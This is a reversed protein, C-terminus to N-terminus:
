AKWVNMCTTHMCGIKFLEDVGIIYALFTNAILFSFVFFLGFKASRKFIKIENWPAKALAKQHSADGEIWYEIRRFVMEMFITQPCAWGCFVRGFIVTFLAIFVIFILMGLGFIFLDQPWFIMGFLIFKRELVNILFIPDGNIKIFPLGFFVLLYVYSLLKRYNYFKGSPKSPYVWKRKGDEGITAIHDRFSENNGDAPEM